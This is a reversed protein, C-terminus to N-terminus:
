GSSKINLFYRRVTDSLLKLLFNNASLGFLIIILSDKKRTKLDWERESRFNTMNWSLILHITEGEELFFIIIENPPMSLDVHVM